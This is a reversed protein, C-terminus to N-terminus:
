NSASCAALALATPLSAQQCYYHSILFKYLESDFVSYCKEAPLRITDVTLYKIMSSLQRDSICDLSTLCFHLGNMQLIYM